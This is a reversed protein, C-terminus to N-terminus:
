GRIGIVEVIGAEVDNARVFTSGNWGVQAKADYTFTQCDSSITLRLEQCYFGTSTESDGINVGHIVLNRDSKLFSTQLTKVDYRGGAMWSRIQIQDYNTFPESLKFSTVTRDNNSYLTKYQKTLPKWDYVEGTSSISRGLKWRNDGSTHRTLEQYTGGDKTRPYVNLWAGGAYEGPIDEFQQMQSTTFYYWGPRTIDSIRAPLPSLGMAYGNADTLKYMQATELTKGLLHQQDTKHAFVYVNLNRTTGGEGTAVRLYVNKNKDIFIGEGETVTDESLKGLSNLPYDKYTNTPLDVIRLTVDNERLSGAYVFMKDEMVAFGQSTINGIKTHNSVYLPVTQRGSAYAQFDFIEAKYWRGGGATTAILIKDEEFNIYALQCETSTKPITTLGAQNCKFKGNAIYKTKIIKNGTVADSTFYIDISGDGQLQCNFMSGHGGNILEMSSLIEGNTNVMTLTCSEGSEIPTAGGVQSVLWRNDDVQRFDQIVSTRVGAFSKFFMPYNSFQPLNFTDLREIAEDVKQNVEAKLQPIEVQIGSLRNEFDTFVSSQILHDVIGDEKWSIM